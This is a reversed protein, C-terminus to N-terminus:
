QLLRNRLVVTTSYARRLRLDPADVLNGACDTYKASSADPAVPNESRVILCIRVTSVKAWRQELPLAALAPDAPGRIDAETLYGNVTLQSTAAAPAVGYTFQLDEVNEVLPQPLPGGNGKCYLSPHQAGAPTDVYFRTEAVTTTVVPLTVTGPVTSDWAVIVNNFATEPLAQGLCDTARGAADRVTNAADAEYRVAIADPGAGGACNLADITVSHSAVNAFATECGRLTYSGPPFVPNRRNANGYNPRRPNNGTMRLQQALLALAAQADENMRSQAEAARSSTSAGLYSSVIAIMLVLGIAMSVLLEILSLGAMAPRPAPRHARKM